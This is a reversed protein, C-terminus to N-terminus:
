YWIAIEYSLHTWRSFGGKFFRLLIILLFTAGIFVHIGHFGTAVFFVAGYAGDRITLPSIFYEAGQIGLFYFGLLFTFILPIVGGKNGLLDRHAWTIVAGSRLLIGTNM